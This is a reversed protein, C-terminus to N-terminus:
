KVALAEKEIISYNCEQSFLKWSIYLIPHEEGDINQSLVVGLGVASTDIQVVFSRTFNPSYLFPEHCLQDMLTHFARECEPSWPVWQLQDKTLLRILPAAITTFEPIFHQYYGVLGLFERVQKKTAPYKQITQVKGVPTTGGRVWATCWILPWRIRCKRHNVTLNAGRLTRLVAAVWNLHNEWHCIYIVVDDLYAAAYEVHTHLLQNM